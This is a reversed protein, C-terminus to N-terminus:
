VIGYQMSEPVDLSREETELGCNHMICIISDPSADDAVCGISYGGCVMPDWSQHPSAESDKM